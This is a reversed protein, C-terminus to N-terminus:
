VFAQCVFDGGFFFKIEVRAVTTGHGVAATGFVWMRDKEVMIRCASAREKESM